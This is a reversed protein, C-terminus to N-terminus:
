HTQEFSLFLVNYWCINSLASWTAKHRLLPTPTVLSRPKRKGADAATFGSVLKDETEERRSDIKTTRMRVM